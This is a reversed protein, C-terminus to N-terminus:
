GGGLHQSRSQDSPPRAVGSRGGVRSPSELLGAREAALLYLTYETWDCYSTLLIEM